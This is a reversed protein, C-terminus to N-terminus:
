GAENSAALSSLEAAVARSFGAAVEDECLPLPADPPMAAAIRYANRFSRRAGELDGQQKLITGLLAHLVALSRDLYLARRCAQEAQAVSGLSLLLSAHLHRLEVCLPFTASASACAREAETTDLNSLARVHVAAVTCGLTPDWTLDAARRYDGAAIAAEAEAILAEADPARPHESARMFRARRGEPPTTSQARPARDESTRSPPASARSSTAAEREPSSRPAPTGISVIEAKRRYFVGEPAVVAELPAHSTLPPDSPGTILWGGDALSDCLRRAVEAVTARSFYILVNRCFVLDMGWVGSQPSPYDDDVLSLVRFSVREKIREDLRYHVGDRRLWPRAEAAGDGRLSWPRYVGEQALELARRSVDTALIRARDGLREAELTMALSYPEEGTSCGASWARLVHREGRRRLVDPLVARRVFAFHGPERFFYTEGIALERIVDDLAEAEASVMARYTAIEGVHARAMARRIGAEIYPHREELITIGTRASFLGAVAEFDPHTWMADLSRQLREERRDRDPACPVGPRAFSM